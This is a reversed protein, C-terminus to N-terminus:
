WIDEVESYQKLIKRLELMATYTPFVTVDDTSDGASLAEELSLEIDTDVADVVIDMYQLRLAMDYARSGGVIVTPSFKKLADLDVDWLWSVDRSDAYNDNVLVLVVRTGENIFTRVNQNFGGPNKALAIHVIRDQM